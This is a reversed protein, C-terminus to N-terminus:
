RVFCITYNRSAFVASKSILIAKLRFSKSKFRKSYYSSFPSHQQKIRKKQSSIIMEFEKTRNEIWSLKINCKKDLFKIAAEFNKFARNFTLKVINKEEDNNM